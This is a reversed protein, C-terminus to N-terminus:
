PSLFMPPIVSYMTKITPKTNQCVDEKKGCESTIRFTKMCSAWVLKAPRGLRIFVALTPIKDSNSLHTKTRIRIKIPIMEDKIELCLNFGDLLLHLAISFFQQSSLKFHLHEHVSLVPNVAVTQILASTLLLLLLLFIASLPLVIQQQVAVVIMCCQHLHHQVKFGIVSYTRIISCM